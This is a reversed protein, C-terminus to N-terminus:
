FKCHSSQSENQESAASFATAVVRSVVLRVGVLLVSLTSIVGVTVVLLKTLLVSGLLTTVVAPSLTTTATVLALNIIYGVILVSTVLSTSCLLVNYRGLTGVHGVLVNVALTSAKKHASAPLRLATYICLKSFM